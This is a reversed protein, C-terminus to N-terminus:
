ILATNQGTWSDLSKCKRCVRNKNGVSQFDCGCMLCQREQWSDPEDPPPKKYYIHRHRGRIKSWKVQVAAASRDMRQAVEEHSLKLHGKFEELQNIEEATWTKM